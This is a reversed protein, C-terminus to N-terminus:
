NRHISPNLTVTACNAYSGFFVVVLGGPMIRHLLSRKIRSRQLKLHHELTHLCLSKDNPKNVQYKPKDELLCPTWSGSLTM